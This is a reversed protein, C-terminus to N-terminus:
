RMETWERNTHVGCEHLDRGDGDNTGTIGGLGVVRVIETM